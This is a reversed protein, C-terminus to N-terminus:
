VVVVRLQAHVFQQFDRASNLPMHLHQLVQSLQEKVIAYSDAESNNPYRIAFKM